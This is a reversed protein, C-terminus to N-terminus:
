LQELQYRCEEATTFMADPLNSVDTNLYAQRVLNAYITRQKQTRRTTASFERVIRDFLHMRDRTCMFMEVDLAAADLRSFYYVNNLLTIIRDSNVYVGEVLYYQGSSNDSATTLYVPTRMGLDFCGDHRNQVFILRRWRTLRIIAETKNGAYEKGQRLITHIQNDNAATLSTKDIAYVSNLSYAEPASNNVYSYSNILGSECRLVYGDSTPKPVRLLGIQDKGRLIDDRTRVTLAPLRTEISASPGLQEKIVLVPGAAAAPKPELPQQLLQDAASAPAQPNTPQPHQQRVAAVPTAAAAAAAPPQLPTSSKTRQFPTQSSQRRPPVSLTLPKTNSPRAATSAYTNVLAQRVGDVGVNEIIADFVASDNDRAARDAM